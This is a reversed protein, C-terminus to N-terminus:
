CLEEKQCITIEAKDSQQSDCDKHLVSENDTPTECVTGSESDDGNKDAHLQEGKAKRAREAADEAAILVWKDKNEELIATWPKPFTISSLQKHSQCPFNPNACIHISDLKECIEERIVDDTKNPVTSQNVQFLIKQIIDSMITFSPEVIFEIFGIQSDAVLTTNRDCLPSFPLGLSKERDGQRFFEELLLDTWKKHMHWKKAPHSIDACHLVLSLAKSKEIGDTLTLMNKMNKIQQFHYSMDTALVMDIMLARFERYEEKSLGTLINLEEIKLLRFASSVHHNELVAKDNYLLAFESGTNIHFNNTTGTHEYDHVLAAIITAFIEVDTLWNTIKSSSLIYHVAHAVDAAHVLNHYPNKYRTYGAELTSLFSDLASTNIKFKTLLDYKQLLEYGVYKLAHSDDNTAFVDFSWDDLNKLITLVPPPIHFGVASGSMRRYIRDVMIGARIVNAVSRFRPKEEGKRKMNNMSRTFTLALWDRVETPVADPEVESLEDDEDCLRRNKVPVPHKWSTMKTSLGSQHPVSSSQLSLLASDQSSSTRDMNACSESSKEEELHLNELVNAIYAINLLLDEKKIDNKSVRDYIQRMRLTGYFSAGIEDHVPMKTLGLEERAYCDCALSEPTMQSPMAISPPPNNQRVTLAGSGEVMEGNPFLLVVRNTKNSVYIRPRDSKSKTDM